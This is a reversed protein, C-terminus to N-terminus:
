NLNVTANVIIEFYMPRFYSPMSKIRHICKILVKTINKMVFFLFFGNGLYIIGLASLNKVYKLGLM